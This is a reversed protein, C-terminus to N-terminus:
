DIMGSQQLPGGRHWNWVRVQFSTRCGSFLAEWVKQAVMNLTQCLEWFGPGEGFFLAKSVEFLQVNQGAFAM